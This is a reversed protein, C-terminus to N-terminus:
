FFNFALNNSTNYFRLARNIDLYFSGRFEKQMCILVAFTCVKKITGFSKRLFRM